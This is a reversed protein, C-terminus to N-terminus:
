PKAEKAKNWAEWSNTCTKCHFVSPGHPCGCSLSKMVADGAEELRRIRDTLDLAHINLKRFMENSRNLERELERCFQSPVFADRLSDGALIAFRTCPKGNIQEDTRPTDSIMKTLDPIHDSM